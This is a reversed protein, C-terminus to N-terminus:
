LVQQALGPSKSQLLGMEKVTKHITLEGTSDESRFTLHVSIPNTV